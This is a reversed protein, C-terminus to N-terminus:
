AVCQDKPDGGKVNLFYAECDQEFIMLEKATVQGESFIPPHNIVPHNSSAIGSAKQTFSMIPQRTNALLLEIDTDSKSSSSYAPPLTSSSPFSQLNSSSSPQEPAQHTCSGSPVPLNVDTTVREATRNPTDNVGLPLATVKSPQKSASRTTRGALIDKQM